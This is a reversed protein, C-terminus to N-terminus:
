IEENMANTEIGAPKLDFSSEGTISSRMEDADFTEASVDTVSSVNSRRRKTKKKAADTYIGKPIFALTSLELYKEVDEATKITDDMFFRIIVVAMSIMLGLAVAIVTWLLVSPESPEGPLNAANAVNVAEVDTVKKIHEAAAERISDALKQATYPDTDKVTIEIIRTDTENLISVQALFHEYDSELENQEIVKELVYRGTILKEYDKTLQSALQADSYTIANGNGNDKTQIYISTTSEYKEPIIFASLMFGAAGAAIMSLLLVWAKHWLLSLVESFDIEILDDNKRKFNSNM